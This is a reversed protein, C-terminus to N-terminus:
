KIKISKIIEDTIEKNEQIRQALDAKYIKTDIVIMVSQKGLTFFLNTSYAFPPKPLEIKYWHSGDVEIIEKNLKNFDGGMSTIFEKSFNTLCSDDGKICSSETTSSTMPMVHVVTSPTKSEGKTFFLKDKLLIADRGSVKPRIYEDPFNITVKGQHLPLSIGALVMNSFICVVFFLFYRIIQM